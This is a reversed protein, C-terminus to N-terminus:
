EGTQSGSVTLGWTAGFQCTPPVYGEPGCEGGERERKRSQAQDAEGESGQIKEYDM